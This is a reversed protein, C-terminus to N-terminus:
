SSRMLDILPRKGQHLTNRCKYRAVDDPMTELVQILNEWLTANERLSILPIPQIRIGMVVAGEIATFLQHEIRLHVEDLEVSEDIAQHELDPHYNLKASRTFSWNARQFAKGPKLETLFKHIMEGIQANLRPVVAHIEHIPHDLWKAPRWSSPFCVAAAVLKMTEQDMVILDPEIKRAISPLDSSDELRCGWNELSAHLKKLFPEFDDSVALYPDPNQDLITQKEHMLEEDSDKTAFFEAPDAKRMRFAWAFDGGPFTQHLPNSQRM